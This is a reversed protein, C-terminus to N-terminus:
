RVILDRVRLVANPSAETAKFTLFVEVPEAGDFTDDNSSHFRVRAVMQGGLRVADGARPLIETETVDKNEIEGRDLPRDVIAACRRESFGLSGCAEPYPGGRSAPVVACASLALATLAM